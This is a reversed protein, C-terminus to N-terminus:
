KKKELLLRCVLNERSQLESTHEESRGHAVVVLVGDDDVESVTELVAAAVRRGVEHRSDAGIGQPEEGQRWARFAEPWGAEIEAQTLGEWVGFSRERLRPDPEVPLGTLAGLV